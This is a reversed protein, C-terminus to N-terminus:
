LEQPQAVLENQDVQRRSQIIFMKFQDAIAILDIDDGDGLYRRQAIHNPLRVVKGLFPDSRIPEPYNEVTVLAPADDGFRLDFFNDALFDGPLYRILVNM